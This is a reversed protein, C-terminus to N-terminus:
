ELGEEGEKQKGGEKGVYWREPRLTAVSPHPWVLGGFQLFVVQSYQMEEVLVEVVRKKKGCEEEESEDEKKYHDDFIFLIGEHKRTKKGKEPLPVLHRVTEIWLTFDVRVPLANPNQDEGTHADPQGTLFSISALGGGSKIDPNTADSTTGTDSASAANVTSMKVTATKVIERRTNAERLVSAPDDLIAQTITDHQLFHSLDQPIRATDVNTADLSPFANVQKTFPAKDLFPVTSIPPIGPPGPMFFDSTPPPQIGQLNIVVGHPITGGRAITTGLAPNVSTGPVHMFMGNELHIATADGDARGTTCNTVDQVSQVYQIANLNIDGQRNLGRNPVTGIGDSFTWTETTLNLELVNNNVGLPPAPPPLPHKFDHTGIPPPGSNPRFIMNFGTGQFNKKALLSLIGLPPDEAPPTNPNGDHRFDSPLYRFGDPQTIHQGTKSGAYPCSSAKPATNTDAM